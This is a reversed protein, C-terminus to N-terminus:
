ASVNPNKEWSRVLLGMPDAGPKGPYRNVWATLSKQEFHAWDGARYRGLPSRSM